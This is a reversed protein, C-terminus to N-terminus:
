KKALLSAGRSFVLYVVLGAAMWIFFFNRTKAELSMFLYLCGLIAAPCVIIPMPVKFPRARTPETRRLILVAAATAVFAALTGANALAAIDELPVLGAIIACVVATVITMLAPAGSKKDIAALQRPLLGDRAMVFFIRSQGFM